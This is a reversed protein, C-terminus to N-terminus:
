QYSSMHFILDYVRFTAWGKNKVRGVSGQERSANAYAIYAPEAGGEEGPAQSPTLTHM